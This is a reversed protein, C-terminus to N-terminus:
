TAPRERRRLVLQHDATGRGRDRIEILGAEGLLADIREPTRRYRRMYRRRVRPLLADPLIQLMRIRWSSPRSDFQLFARGDQKLVRRIERLNASVIGDDPFHQFVLLSIVLDFTSDKFMELSAGSAVTLSCM